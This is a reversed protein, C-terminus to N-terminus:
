SLGSALAGLVFTAGDGSRCGIIGLVRARNLGQGSAQLQGLVQEFGESNAPEHMDSFTTTM